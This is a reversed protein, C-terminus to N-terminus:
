KSEEEIMRNIAEIVLHWDNQGLCYWAARELGTTSAVLKRIILGCRGSTESKEHRTAAKRAYWLAKKLDEIPNGKNKYRWLYKIVNGTCFYQHKALIICEYGINRGNYHTPHNINDTM